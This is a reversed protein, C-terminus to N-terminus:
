SSDASAHVRKRPRYYLDHLVADWQIFPVPETARLKTPEQDRRDTAFRITVRIGVREWLTKMAKLPSLSASDWKFGWADLWLAVNSMTIQKDAVFELSSTGDATHNLECQRFHALFFAWASSPGQERSADFLRRLQEKVVHKRHSGDDSGISIDRNKRKPVRLYVFSFRFGPENTTLELLPKLDLTPIQTHDYVSGMIPDLNIAIHVNIAANPREDGMEESPFFTNVFHVVDWPDMTARDIHERHMHMFEARIQRNVQTLAFYKGIKNYSSDSTRPKLALPKPEQCFLYVNNRVEAPLAMFPGLTKLALQKQDHYVNGRKEMEEAHTQRKTAAEKQMALEAQKKRRDELMVRWQVERAKDEALRMAALSKSLLDAVSSDHNLNPDPTKRRPM